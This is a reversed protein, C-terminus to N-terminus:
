HSHANSFRRSALCTRCDRGKRAFYTNLLDYPHGKPCHTKRAQHQGGAGRKANVARTVPELHQPNCCLRNRCLHDLDLGVPVQGVLTQYSWRHSSITKAGDKGSDRFSGYGNRSKAGKWVWCRGLDHLLDPCPGGKDVKPWFLDAPTRALRHAYIFRTPMGKTWGRRSENRKAIPAPQGCGCECYVVIRREWFYDEPQM